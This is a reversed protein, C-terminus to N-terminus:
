QRSSHRRKQRQAQSQCTSGWRPRYRRPNHCVVRSADRIGRLPGRSVGQRAEYLTKAQGTHMAGPTMYGIGSHPHEHNYGAFFKQCFARAQEMSDFRAPFDPQYKLTKFPSASYPNDDSVQPRGHSKTVGLDVLLMAVPKSRMSTGRDAHLTLQDKAIAEQDCTAAILEKARESCARAALM